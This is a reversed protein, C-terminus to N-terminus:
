EKTQMGIQIFNESEVDSDMRQNIVEYLEDLCVKGEPNMSYSEESTEDFFTYQYCSSVEKNTIGFREVMDAQVNCQLLKLYEENSVGAYVVYEM